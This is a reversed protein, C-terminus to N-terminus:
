SSISSEPWAGHSPWGSWPAFRTKVKMVPLRLYRDNRACLACRTSRETGARGARNASSKTPRQDQLGVTPAVLRSTVREPCM